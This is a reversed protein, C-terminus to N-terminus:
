VKGKSAAAESGLIAVLDGKGMQAFLRRAFTLPIGICGHTAWGNRVNSAHIAVGDDTLRLMYPMPADYTRSHYDEAKQLVAFRGTPTPKGDTGYLIVASGIEHGDRFVSLLQKDLDVRVWVRGAPVDDENWVYSGYRMPKSINLVSRVVEEGGGPLPLRQPLDAPYFLRTEPHAARMASAMAEQTAQAREAKGQQVLLLLLAALAGGAFLLLSSSRISM